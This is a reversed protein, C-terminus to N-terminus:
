FTTFLNEEPIVFALIIYLLLGWGWSALTLIVYLIRVITPDVGFYKALGGCVGFLKKDTLSRRLEKRVAYPPVAGACAGASASGADSAAGSSTPDAAPDVPPPTVIYPQSKPRSHVYLFWLGVIILMVPFAVQWSMHFWDFAAFWGLNAMLFLAGILIMIIGWFRKQEGSKGPVTGPIQYAASLDPNWPMLLMGAIYVIFGIGGMITVIVFVIRVITPDVDFYEAIGGCVGDIMKYRRSKYLRRPTDAM